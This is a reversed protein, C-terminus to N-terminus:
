LISKRKNSTNKKNEYNNLTKDLKSSIFITLINMMM